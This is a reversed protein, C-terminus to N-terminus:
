QNCEPNLINKNSVNKKEKEKRKKSGRAFLRRCISNGYGYSKSLRSPAFSSLSIIKLKNRM